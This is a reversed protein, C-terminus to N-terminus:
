SLKDLLILDSVFFRDNLIQKSTHTQLNLVSKTLIQM